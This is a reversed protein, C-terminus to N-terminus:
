NGANVRNIFQMATDIDLERSAYVKNLLRETLLYDWKEKLKNQVRASLQEATPQPTRGIEKLAKLVDQYQLNRVNINLGENEAALGHVSLILALADNAWDGLWSFIQVHIGNKYFANHKLGLRSYASRAEELQKAATKDLFSFSSNRSLISQMEKRVRDDVKGGMGEFIPLKGTEAPDVEIIRDDPRCSLVRWRRGAFILYGGNKIPRSLPLTGLSRGKHTVRFEEQVVFAALFSFHNVIREGLPGLLLLGSKEQILIGKEGLSYLLETFDKQTLGSFVRSQCLLVWADIATLGGGQAILSLLQQILTSLHLNGTRPPEYWGKLLM